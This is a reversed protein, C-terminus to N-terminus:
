FHQRSVRAHVARGTLLVHMTGREFDFGVPQGEGEIRFTLRPHPLWELSVNGSGTILRRHQDLELAGSYLIVPENVEGTRYVPKLSCSVKAFDDRVWEAATPSM